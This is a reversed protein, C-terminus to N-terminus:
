QVTGSTLLHETLSWTPFLQVEHAVRDSNPRSLEATTSLLYVCVFCLCTPQGHELLM